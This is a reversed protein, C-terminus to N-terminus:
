AQTCERKTIGYVSLLVGFVIMPLVAVDAAVVRAFAVSLVDAYLGFYCSEFRSDFCSYSTEGGCDCRTEVKALAGLVLLVLGLTAFFMRGGSAQFLSM